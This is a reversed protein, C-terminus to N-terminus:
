NTIPGTGDTNTWVRGVRSDVNVFIVAGTVTHTLRIQYPINVLNGNFMRDLDFPYHTIPVTTIGPGPSMIKAIVNVDSFNITNVVTAPVTTNNLLQYGNPTNGPVAVVTSDWLTLQFNYTVPANAPPIFTGGNVSQQQMRRIDTVLESAAQNLERQFMATRLQLVGLTTVMGVIGIVIILEILTFGRENNTRFIGM